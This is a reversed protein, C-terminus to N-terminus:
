ACTPTPGRSTTALGRGAARQGGGGWGEKRLLHLGRALAGLQLGLRANGVRLTRGRLPGPDGRRRADAGRGRGEDAARRPHVRRLAHQPLHPRLSRLAPHRASAAVGLGQPLVPGRGERRARQLGEDHALPQRAPMGLEQELEEYTEGVAAIETPVEPRVFTTDDVICFIEGNQRRIALEGHDSQYLDENCYRQGQKNVMVGYLLQRPPSYPLAIMAADMHIAEGGAAMGMLIGSGDDGSPSSVRIKVKLLDPAHHRLMDKNRVYGGAALVIGRRARIWTEEGEIRAKLGVIRQDEDRQVLQEARALTQLLAGEKAAGEMLKEMLLLGANAGELQM